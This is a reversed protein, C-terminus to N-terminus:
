ASERGASCQRLFRFTKKACSEWSYARAKGHAARALLLMKGESGLLELLVNCMSDPQEPDFYLGADGLIEPMPGRDSSLVPLGAAMTELLINPMNECSSAFIGVHAKAYLSHLEQYDIAGHYHVWEGHPDYQAVAMQVRKLAPAYAPGILDLQLSLGSSNRARAVAEVVHWQHKYQDIISVYIVHIQEGKGPLKCQVLDDETALFRSNLGHPIISTKGKLSGTVRRVSQSAYETLFIVGSAKCFSRTQLFRLLILKLTILSIGYRLLERWEFPLMNRSMTVIPRFNTGFNGGPVFLVNCDVARAAKSFSFLQWLTRKVLGKELAPVRVKELWPADVLLDLTQGAGWVVVSDFKDRAPDAVRLLEILHTRGGGRRLNTADIGIRLTSM